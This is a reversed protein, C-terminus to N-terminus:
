SEWTHTWYTVMTSNSFLDSGNQLKVNGSLINQRVLQHEPNSWDIPYWENEPLLTVSSEGPIPAQWVSLRKAIFNIGARVEPQNRALYREVATKLLVSGTLYEPRASSRACSYLLFIVLLWFEARPSSAMIANPIAHPFDADRGMRGLVVGSYQTLSDLPKLCETDMDVYIGGFLYLYFYRVADVRYIEAPYANFIGAFWPFNQYIFHQNDADDWCEYLFGPNLQRFSQSCRLFMPPLIHKNKWTQFIRAPIRIAVAANQNITNTETQM